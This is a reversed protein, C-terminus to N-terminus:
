SGPRTAPWRWSSVEWIGALLSDM